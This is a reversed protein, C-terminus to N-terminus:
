LFPNACLYTASKHNRVINFGQPCKKLFDFFIISLDSVIFIWGTSDMHRVGKWQLECFNRFDYVGM